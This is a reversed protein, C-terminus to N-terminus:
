NCRSFSVFTFSLESFDCVCNLIFMSGVKLSSVQLKLRECEEVSMHYQMRVKALEMECERKEKREKDAERYM